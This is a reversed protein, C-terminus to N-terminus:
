AARPERAAVVDEFVNLFRRSLGCKKCRGESTPGSPTGIVWHHRCSGPAGVEEQAPTSKEAM